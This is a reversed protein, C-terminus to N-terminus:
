YGRWYEVLNSLVFSLDVETEIKVRNIEAANNESVSSKEVIGNVIKKEKSAIKNLSQKMIQLQEILYQNKIQRKVKDFADMLDDPSIPKLLFDTASFKFADIAYKNHATIFILHFNIASLQSLLDMGTGDDLEVDLLVLDPRIEEIKKLGSVVGDAEHLEEIDTCFNIIMELVGKRINSENDVVLIKM